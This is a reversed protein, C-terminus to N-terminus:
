AAPAAASRAKTKYAFYVIMGMLVGQAAGALVWRLAIGGPLPQVAYTIFTMAQQFLAMCLGYACARGLSPMAAHAWILVFMLATLFQGAILYAMHHTMEAETRWLQATEKYLSNLWVGHILMDTAFIGVFVAVIALVLRKPNMGPPHCLRATRCARFRPIIKALELLVAHVGREKIGPM